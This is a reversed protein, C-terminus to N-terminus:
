SKVTAEEVKNFFHIWIVWLILTVLYVPYTYIDHINIPLNYHGGNHILYIMILSIRLVNMLFILVIGGAIFWAKFKGNLIAIFSAYILMLEIGACTDSFFIAANATYIYREYVYTTYGFVALLVRSLELVGKSIWAILPLTQTYTVWQTIILLVAVILLNRVVRRVANSSIQLQGILLRKLPYNKKWWWYGFALLILNLIAVLSGNWLVFSFNANSLEGSTLILWRLVNFLLIFSLIFIGWVIRKSTSARLFFIGLLFLLTQWFSMFRSDLNIRSLFINLLEQRDVGILQGVLVSIRQILLAYNKVLFSDVSALEHRLIPYLPLLVLLVLVYQSLPLYQRYVQKLKGLRDM